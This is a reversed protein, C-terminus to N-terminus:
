RCELKNQIEEDGWLKILTFTEADTWLMAM